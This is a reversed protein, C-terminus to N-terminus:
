DLRLLGKIFHYISFLEDITALYLMRIIKQRM